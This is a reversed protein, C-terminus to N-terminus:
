NNLTAELQAAAAALFKQSKENVIEQFLVAFFCALMTSLFANKQNFLCSTSHMWLENIDAKSRSSSNSSTVVQQQRIFFSV